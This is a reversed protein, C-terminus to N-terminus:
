LEVKRKAKLLNLRLRSQIETLENLQRQLVIERQEKIEEEWEFPDNLDIGAKSAASYLLQTLMTYNPKDLYDLSFIHDEFTQFETPMRTLLRGHLFQQKLRYVEDHDYIGSWPLKGVYFETMMYLLSILDDSRGLEKQIHAKPSAYRMTGRFSSPQTPKILKGYRMQMKKCLGFDIIYITGATKKTNGIVFNDPKIDRHVIGAKHMERIAEMSQVGFKLMQLLTFMYPRRRNVVQIISPGLLEMSVFRFSEYIGSEYFKAFHVSGQMSTMVMVENALLQIHKIEKQFKIACHKTVSGNQYLASFITGYTGAGIQRQITYFEKVIDGPYIPIDSPEQQKAM